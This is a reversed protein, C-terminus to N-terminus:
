KYVDGRPGIRVIDLIVGDESYIVRWQGVRLRYGDRGLLKKIDLDLRAPNEALKEIGSLIAKAQRPQMARLAKAAQKSYVIRLM